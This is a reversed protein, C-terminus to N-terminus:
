AADAISDGDLQDGFTGPQRDHPPVSSREVTRVGRDVSGGRQAVGDHELGGAAAASGPDAAHVILGLQEGHDFVGRGFRLCREAIGPQVELRQEHAGPVELHRDHDIPGALDPRETRIVGRQAPATVLDHDLRSGGSEAGCVTLRHAARRRGQHLEGAIAADARDSEDVHGSLSWGAEELDIRPQRGLVRQGLLGGSDVEYTQLHM